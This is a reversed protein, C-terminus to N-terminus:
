ERGRGRGADGRDMASQKSEQRNERWQQLKNGGWKFPMSGGKWVAVGTNKVGKGISIGLNAVERGKGEAKQQTHMTQLNKESKKDITQERKGKHTMQEYSKRSDEDLVYEPLHKKEPKDTVTLDKTHKLEESTTEYLREGKATEATLTGNRVKYIIVNGKSKEQQIREKVGPSGGGEAISRQVAPALNKIGPHSKNGRNPQNM